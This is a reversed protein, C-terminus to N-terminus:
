LKIREQANARTLRVATPEGRVVTIRVNWYLETYALEYRAYVWYEGPSVFLNERAVGSADTTDVAPDTGALDIKAVWVDGVGAFAEDAWNDQVIRISDSQRITGQQLNNFREFSRNMQSDVRGLEADFDNWENYLAIYRSEAPNYGEMATLLKQLTDRVTNWRLQARQWEDQAERVLDRAEILDPPVEPEPTAYAATMSDFIADRDFPLLQVEIDSLARTITGDGDPNPIDIEMTVIVEGSGCAAASLLLAIALPLSRRRM